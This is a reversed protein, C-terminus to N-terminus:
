GPVDPINRKLEGKGKNFSINLLVLWEKNSKINIKDLEIDSINLISSFAQHLGEIGNEEIEISISIALDSFMNFNVICGDSSSIVGKVADIVKNRNNSSYAQWNLTQQM